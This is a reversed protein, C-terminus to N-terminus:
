FKNNQYIIQNVPFLLVRNKKKRKEKKKKLFHSRGFCM